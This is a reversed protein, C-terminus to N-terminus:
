SETIDGKGKNCRECLTQLNDITSLGGQSRPHIHDIELKVTDDTAPSRGCAQCRFHDRQLVQYRLRWNIHTGVRKRQRPPVPQGGLEPHMASEFARLTKSWTGFRTLYPGVTYLSIPPHLDAIRPQRKLRRWTKKFNDFLEEDTLARYHRPLLGAARLARHWSGFQKRVADTTFRGHVRYKTLQPSRTQLQNAVRRLDRLIARRSVHFLHAPRLGLRTMAKKWSGVRRIVTTASFRGLRDYRHSSLRDTGLQQAVARVDALLERTPIGRRIIQVAFTTQTTSM